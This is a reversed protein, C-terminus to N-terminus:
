YRCTSGYPKRPQRQVNRYIECSKACYDLEQLQGMRKSFPIENPTKDQILTVFCKGKGFIMQTSVAIQLLSTPYDPGSHNLDIHFLQTRDRLRRQGPGSSSGRHAYDLHEPHPQSGEWPASPIWVGAKKTFSNCPYAAQQTVQSHVLGDQMSLATHWAPNAATATVWPETICTGLDGQCKWNAHM